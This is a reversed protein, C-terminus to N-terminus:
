RKGQTKRRDRSVSREKARRAPTLSLQAPTLSPDPQVGSIRRSRRRPLPAEEPTTQNIPKSEAYPVPDEAATEVTEEDKSTQHTASPM